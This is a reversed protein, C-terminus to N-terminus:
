KVILPDGVAQFLHTKRSEWACVGFCKMNAWYEFYLKSDNVFPLQPEAVHTVVGVPTNSYNTGGFANDAYWYDFNGSDSYQLGNSSEITEILYWGSDGHWKVTGDIAYWRNLSSHFGWSIYGAVNTASTIHPLVSNSEIGTIYIINSTSVGAALLGNTTSSVAPSQIYSGSNGPYRVDDVAYTVNGYGAASASLLPSGPARNTGLAALKNIYAVCGNTRNVTNTMGMNIHTTFPQWGAALSQLQVSVSGYPTASPYYWIGNTVNFSPAASSSSVRAPLEMFLIVYQPRKTPNAELWSLLPTFLQNTLEQPSITEYYGPSVPNTYGLGLVNAESVMPRHALYYDKVFASDASNTNYILLLDQSVEVPYQVLPSFVAALSHYAGAAITTLDDRGTPLKV